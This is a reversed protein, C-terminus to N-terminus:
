KLVFCAEPEVARKMLGPRSNAKLRADVREAPSPSSVYEARDREVVSAERISEFLHEVAIAEQSEQLLQHSTVSSSFHKQDDVVARPVPEVFVSLTPKAGVFM